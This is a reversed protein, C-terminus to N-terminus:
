CTLGVECVLLQSASFKDALCWSDPNRYGLYSDLHRLMGSDVSLTPHLSLSPSHNYVQGRQLLLYTNLSISPFPQQIAQLCTFVNMFSVPTRESFSLQERDMAHFAWFRHIGLTEM